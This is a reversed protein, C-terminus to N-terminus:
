EPSRRRVTFESKGLTLSGSSREAVALFHAQVRFPKEGPPPSLAKWKGTSDLVRTQCNDRFYAGLIGLLEARIKEEQIPFMLEVRRELNRPMWDASSLYLEDAGGNAFYYIRSHELYHDIIGSVRINESLGSVGPVLTCIGRVSLFIKVGAQSARYLAKIIDADVLANIKAMIKGPYKQSSRKTEREILELLRRKLGAPAIVLKRMSQIVSYGTIMNFLLGADYVIEERCTFLCIDEYFKATRDNYNGTSLHVYRKIRDNERRIVQTIKAHVKLRSLGYIVIVGARELRNAWSINREEDFRAKLEVLATVHKGALSAQELARIIPSNGSTRYLATKISIVAPDSAADQFFRVVPDFSQYPLHIMVDGERIRDWISEDENFAAVPFIKWPKEKLTDFGQVNALDFRDGLNFPGDTEYIDDDDLALRKALADKLRLSGPSCVMRVASSNERGELVEEMAEIFDEDRQEDVSFDADRNVKFLLRELVKMGPFLAKGWTMVIDDALAFPSTGEGPLWIIRNAVQPIQVMAICEGEGAKDTEASLLFAANLSLSDISPLPKNDEIRLPTLIPFIQSLFFSELYDLQAKTYTDPRVLCLGGAALAPFIEDQLCAYQRSVISRVKKSILKLQEAPSLGSFDAPNKLGTVASGGRMARKLAAVRVMFFEDFNSSVISLFRFRELPPLDKRLGEELVRDNFDVWSIDRNFFHPTDDNETNNTDNRM